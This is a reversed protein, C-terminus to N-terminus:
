NSAHKDMGKSTAQYGFARMDDADYYFSKQYANSGDPKYMVQVYRLDILDRLEAIIVPEREAVEEVLTEFPEVFTLCNLIQHQIKNLESM